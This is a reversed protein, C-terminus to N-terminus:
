DAATSETPVYRIGAGDIHPTVTADWRRPATDDLLWTLQEESLLDGFSARPDLVKLPEAFMGSLVRFLTAADFDVERLISGARGPDGSYECEFVLDEILATGVYPLRDDPATDAAARILAPVQARGRHLIADVQDFADDGGDSAWWAEALTNLDGEFPVQPEFWSENVDGAALKVTERYQRPAPRRLATVLM